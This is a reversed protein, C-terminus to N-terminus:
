ENLLFAQQLIESYEKVMEDYTPLKDLASTANQTLEGRLKEDQYVNQINESLLEIDGPDCLLASSGHFVQERIGFTNTSVIPLKLYMAEQIV